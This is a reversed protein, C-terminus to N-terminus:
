ADSGDIATVLFQGASKCYIVLFYKRTSTIDDLTPLGGGYESGFSLTRDTGDNGQLLVTRTQGPIANSPNGLTRNGAVTVTFNEGATWDIAITGADSLGVPAAVSQLHGGDLLKASAAQRVQADTARQLPNAPSQGDTGGVIEKGSIDGFVAIQGIVVGGDPGGVDGSGAGDAGDVGARAFVLGVQAGQVFSGAGSASLVAVSLKRYNAPSGDVAVSAQVQAIILGGGDTSRIHLTGRDLVDGGDDLTDLWSSQDIGNADQNALYIETVSGPAADNFRFNGAGPDADTTAADFLWSVGVPAADQESALGIGVYRWTKSFEGSTATIRYAGGPAHFAAFGDIGDINATFPNGLPTTGDRDSYISALPAGSAERRVEIQASPLVNGAEDVITRQWRALVM